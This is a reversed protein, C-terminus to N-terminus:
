FQLGFTEPLFQVGLAFPNKTSQCVKIVVSPPDPLLTGTRFLSPFAVKEEREKIQHVVKIAGYSV